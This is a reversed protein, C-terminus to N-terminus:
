NKMHTLLQLVPFFHKFHRLKVRVWLSARDLGDMRCVQTKQGAPIRNNAWGCLFKWRGPIMKLPRFNLPLIILFQGNQCKKGKFKLGKFITGPFHFNKHLHGLCLYGVPYFLWTQLIAPKSLTVRQTLTFNPCKLAKKGKGWIPWFSCSPFFTSQIDWSWGWAFLWGTWVIWGVSM